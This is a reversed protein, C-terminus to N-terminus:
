KQSRRRVTLMVPVPRPSGGSPKNVIQLSGDHQAVLLISSGGGDLNLASTAGLRVMLDTLERATMGVSYGPQRGDVVVLYLWRGSADFGVATRPHRPGGSNPRAGDKGFMAFSWANVADELAVGGAAAGIYPKGHRDVGFAIDPAGKEPGKSRTVGDHIAVGQIDVPQSVHWHDDRKGASDPMGAFANANVAALVHANRALVLPDTLAAEAPGSGDPDDAIVADVALHRDHLDVRLVSIAETDPTLHETWYVLPLALEAATQPAHDLRVAAIDKESPVSNHYCAASLLLATCAISNRNMRNM